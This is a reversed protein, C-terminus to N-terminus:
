DKKAFQAKIMSDLTQSQSSLKGMVLDFSAFKKTLIEYQRDLRDQAKSLEKDYRTIDDEFNKNLTKLTGDSSIAIDFLKSELKNFLGDTANSAKFFEVTISSDKEYAEKFKDEDFKLTGDRQLSLGFDESMKGDKSVTTAIIDQLSRTINRIDSNGQFIGAEKKEPDYKTDESIKNIVANYKEVFKNIGEIIKSNDKKITVDSKGEKELKITINKILDDIKNTARTIEVGDVKFVADQAPDGIRSIGGSFSDSDSSITMQNEKGTQASKIILKYPNTGSVNLISAEVKGDTQNNIKEVLDELTDGDNITIDYDQGLNITFTGSQLSADKSAFGDSAEYIDKTALQTVDISIAQENVSGSTTISVSDGTIDKTVTDYPTDYTMDTVATSLESVLKKIEALETKKNEVATKKNEIPTVISAKDAEKLKDIIDNTLVGQSGLGLTSLAGFDM